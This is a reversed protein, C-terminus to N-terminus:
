FEGPTRYNKEIRTATKKLITLLEEKREKNFRQAPLYVSASAIVKREKFVPVAIGVIHKDTIQMAYGDARIKKLESLLAKKNQVSRWTEPQPLGYKSIFKELDAESLMAILLRGSASDYAKKESATNAQIAQASSARAIAIRQDENLVALLSNENVKKTLAELEAKAADVLDKKYNTNSSLAYAMPGLCYGKSRDIKDLYRRNVLTKIINACTAANLELKEAIDGLARPKEPDKGIYELVDLARNVVQIM